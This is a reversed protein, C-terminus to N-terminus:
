LVPPGCPQIGERPGEFGEDLMQLNAIDPTLYNRWGGDTAATSM